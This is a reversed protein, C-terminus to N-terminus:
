QWETDYNLTMIWQWWDNDDNITMWQLWGENDDKLTVNMAMIWQWWDNDDIMTM